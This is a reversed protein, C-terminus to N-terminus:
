MASSYSIALLRGARRLCYMQSLRIGAAATMVRAIATSREGDTGQGHSVYGSKSATPQTPSSYWTGVRCRAECVRVAAMWKGNM